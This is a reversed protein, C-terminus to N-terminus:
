TPVPAGSEDRLALAPLPAPLVLPVRVLSRVAGGARGRRVRLDRVEFAYLAAAPPPESAIREALRREVDRARALAGAVVRDAVAQREENLLPTSMGFHTTSLGRLRQFFSSDRGRWLADHAERRMAFPAGM